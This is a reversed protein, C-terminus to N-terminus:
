CPIRLETHVARHCTHTGKEEDFELSMKHIYSLEEMVDDSANEMKADRHCFSKHVPWDKLQCDKSCYTYLKCICYFMENKPFEKGCCDCVGNKKMLAAKKKAENMCNCPTERALCNIIGRDTGLGRFYKKFKEDLESGRSMDMKLLTPVFCYRIQIGFYLLDLIVSKAPKYKLGKDLYEKTARAFVFRAFGPDIVTRHHKNFFENTLDKRQKSFVSNSLIQFDELTGLYESHSMKDASSGHLCVSSDDDDDNNNDTNDNPRDATLSLNANASLALKQENKKEKNKRNRKKKNNVM